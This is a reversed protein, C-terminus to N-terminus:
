PGFQQRYELSEIFGRVIMNEVDAPAFGLNFRHTHFIYGCQNPDNGTWNQPDNCDEPDRSLYSFYAMTVFAAKYYKANVESSEAIIRLVEARIRTGGNLDAVLQSQNSNTVGATDLLKQVFEAHSMTPSAPYLAQIEARQLWADALAVKTTETLGADDNPTSIGQLDSMFESYHPRAVKTPGNIESPTVPRQGISVMYLYMVYSGKRQFEASRFFNASLAGRTYKTCELDTPQCGNLIDLYFQLGAPEPLRALFEIYQQTIFFAPDDIPNPQGATDNDTIAGTATSLGLTGGTPESLTIDFAEPNEVYVDDIIFANIPKSAEGAAFHLQGVAIHYDCKQSAVGALQGPNSPNCNFTSASADSTTYKVTAPASTDGSRNVTITMAGDSEGVVYNAQSFSIQNNVTQGSSLTGTSVDFNTDGSYTATITHPGGTLSSTSLTAVGSGNLTVPAGPNSGDIKFQVTGTPTGGTSTVTATFTVSQGQDSPNSSSSLTTNTSAKQANVTESVQTASNYNTDGAQDYNVTCAGTGSTMTFLGDVNTCAGGSTYVVTLGSDSTAAVTFTSNYAASAPAHTNVTITQNAKSVNLMFSADTITNCNDTARITITHTGAPAANSISIVGTTNNVSITGTYTGFSQVIISSVTGNDSPGGTPNITLSGNFAVPQNGYTLTPPMDSTVTTSASPASACGSATVTVTYSGAANADYTQNTAGGIPNGNLYWQNGSVSSSSLPVSGGPCFTTAAAPTIAPTGPIPNVTVTTATSPASTCGNATDTVSYDGAATAIYAPNMAGGIPNGNLYWQNGSDSAGSSTLTVSGGECFTTPGGPTITPASPMGKVTVTTATSPASSCGNTTDIVTYGGSANAIFAQNTAGGIPNGNLYWQNGSASSSTLTVDGGECFTTPGGPTITPTAPTPNVTVTTATSPASSCGSATDIVTYGGSANALYTQNTAGGISNGNLYWQNGSASSSTLTVDGGECVTTPGGPTITPTAPITNVTVTTATSPASACGSATVAVSYGGSASAIFTQNTAGNIPNSNLYWQNGSASSSTLTVDGGECFTTPGGPTITPTAPSANVTITTATSPASTFGNITVIDTYNGAATAIYQQNTAGGIPNGDLYWQNGGASNSTLTVSGGACFTTPGGPTITPQAPTNSDFCVTVDNVTPTVTNATTALLAEYKVYRFGNFQALSAGSSFFTSATGDPGVFNFPGNISNSAAAQFRVTTNAPTTSTWSLTLWRSVFGVAPNADKLGSIQNGSAIFGNDMYSRFGADTSVGATLPTSWVTGSTAGAIRTGGAYVDAGTGPTGSRPIGYSGTSPNAVPRVILAYQTGATLTAPIAFVATYFTPTVSAFGPITASTIDAGTPFGGSTARVSLTLNPTTGSCASCLLTIDVKTLNGSIGPTFTQGGWTTISLTGTGTGTTTNQQDTTIPKLLIIDGPSTILDVSTAVGAQFDAQSTDAACASSTSGTLSFNQTTTAADTVVISTATSTGYGAFNATISPYTGAPLNSFAYVGSVNTTTTRSGLAVTAGSIPNSNASDTVTGSLGGGNGVATCGPFSFSGIRTLPSEGDVAFYESTYWFTCGDPDLTMSSYDGWRTCIGAGCNGTQAGEGQILVQETQSFTNVLDTALRGAYKIAPKTTSSSTSYGLAMDGMRDVALSPLFRHIVNAGDPDWTTGQLLNAAVTGGTVNAQYWRPAAFGSTDFRRVTHTAWLSEAGGINSYQNQMMAQFQQVELDNGGLSPANPVTANPWSAAALSFDPGTFTSLSIRNWDVHFKYVSLKGRFVWTSVFYNPTGPPPTGTQLRANSPLITFDTAPANFTVSQVVSAGAYMQAKNFAWVRPNQFTRAASYGEMNASMYLGDPWIGLKPADGRGGTNISYFNWGGAVPDGTKSAAICQFSGPPNIIDGSGNLTFAMDAILWRDEFSDYLVIPYGQNNTDCVNGFNGQSMFENFTLAVVRVGDSKRFIGISADITQIYYIPGADGNSRPPRGQGFNAFDLGDFNMTPAPAAGNVLPATLATLVGSKSTMNTASTRPDFIPNAQLAAREPQERKISKPPPLNRLDGSFSQAKILREEKPKRSGQNRKDRAVTTRTEGVPDAPPHIFLGTELGERDAGHVYSNGKSELKLRNKENLLDAVSTTGQQQRAGSVSKRSETRAGALLSSLVVVTLISLVLWRTLHRAIFRRKSRVTSRM